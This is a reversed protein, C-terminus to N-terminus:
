DLSQFFVSGRESLKQQSSLKTVDVITLWVVAFNLNRINEADPKAKNRVNKNEHDYIVEAEAQV